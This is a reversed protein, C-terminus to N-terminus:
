RGALVDCLHGIEAEADAQSSVTDMIQQRLLAQYRQRMKRVAFRVAPEALGTRVAIDRYSKGPDDGTLSGELERFLDAKGLGAYYARMKRIVEDLVAYAWSQDYLADPSQSHAPESALRQEAQMQDISIVTQGGGRKLTSEKRWEDTIFHKLAALLFSRLRGKEPMATRLSDRKLLMLFFGQTVDEADQPAAGSRRVWAYLPYWYAQCLEALAPGAGNQARLM